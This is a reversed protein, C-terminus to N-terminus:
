ICLQRYEVSDEQSTLNNELEQMSRKLIGKYPTTNKDFCSYTLNAPPIKNGGISM